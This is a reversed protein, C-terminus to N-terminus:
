VALADFLQQVGNVRARMPSCIAYSKHKGRDLIAHKRAHACTLTHAHQRSCVCIKTCYNYIRMYASTHACTFRTLRTLRNITYAPTLRALACFEARAPPNRVGGGGCMTAVIVDFDRYYLLDNRVYPVVVCLLKM